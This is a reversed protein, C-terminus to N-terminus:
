TRPWSTASCRCPTSSTRRRSPTRSSTSAHRRRTPTSSISRRQGRRRSASPSTPGGQHLREVDRLGRCLCQRRPRRPHLQRHRRGRHHHRRRAQAHDLRQARAHLRWRVHGGDDRQRAPGHRASRHHLRRGQPRGQRSHGQRHERQGAGAGVDAERGQPGQAITVKGAIGSRVVFQEMQYTPEPQQHSIYMAVGPKKLNANLGELTVLVVSVEIQNTILAAVNPPGGM